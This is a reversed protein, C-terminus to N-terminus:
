PQDDPRVPKDGPRRAPTPRQPALPRTASRGTVVAAEEMPGRPGTHPPEIALVVSGAIASRARAVGFAIALSDEMAQYAPSPRGHFAQTYPSEVYRAVLAADVSDIIEPRLQAAAIMAKPAFLSTAHTAAFRLFLEAALAPAAFSDRVVEADRFARVGSTDEVRMALIEARLARAETVVSGTVTLDILSASLSDLDAPTRARALRTLAMHFQARSAEASDPVLAVAAQYRGLARDFMRASRLRDGDAILLRARPAARLKGQALLRDLADAAAATGASRSVVDLADGWRAEDEDRRAVTDVWAVAAGGQGAEALAALRATAAEPRRSVAFRREALTYDGSQDAALGAIYFASSRRGGDHSVLVPSLYREADAISGQKVACAAAALSARERLGDNKVSAVAHSLPEMAADCAGSKALGEGQLVLADDAWRSHPHHVLVTEAKAAALGWSQRAEPIMGREELKRADSALRNASWLGNYYACGALVLAALTAAVHGRARRIV